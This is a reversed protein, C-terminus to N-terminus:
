KVTSCTAGYINNPTYANASTNYNNLDVTFYADDRKLEPELVKLEYALDFDKNLLIQRKIGESLTRAVDIKFISRYDQLEETTLSIIFDENPDITLDTKFQKILFYLQRSINECVYKYNM